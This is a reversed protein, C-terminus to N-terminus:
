ILKSVDLKKDRPLLKEAEKKTIKGYLGSTLNDIADLRVAERLQPDEISNLQVKYAEREMELRFTKNKLYKETFTKLGIKKQQKLHHLEHLLVDPYLPRNSYIQNDYAIVTDETIKFFKGFEKLRRFKNLPQIKM